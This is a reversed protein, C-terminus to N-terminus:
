LKKEISRYMIFYVVAEVTIFAAPIIVYVLDVKMFALALMAISTLQLMFYNTKAGAKDKITINREDNIEIETQQKEKPYKKYLRNNYLGQISRGFLIVGVAIGFSPIIINGIHKYCILSVALLVISVGLLIWNNSVKTKM